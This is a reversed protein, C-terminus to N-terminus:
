VIRGFMLHRYFYLFYCLYWYRTYNHVIFLGSYICHVCLEMAVQIHRAISLLRQLVQPDDSLTKHLIVESITGLIKPVNCNNEGLM